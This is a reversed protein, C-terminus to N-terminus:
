SFLHKEAHTAVTKRYKNDTIIMVDWDPISRMQIAEAVPTYDHLTKSNEGDIIPIDTQQIRPEALHLDPSPIDIIVHGKPINLYEEFFEEKQRRISNNELSSLVQKQEDTLQQGSRVFAQKFLQRYKLHTILSQQFTEQQKLFMILEADTMSFFEFPDLSPLMELARSLMLEAIRVTKHYYVSSYMLTRAMLINEVVGVGKRNLALQDQHILLTQVFRQTDIMGYAVGTYYADRLLYDLQDVDIVSNLVQTLYPKATKTGKIMNSITRTDVQHSELVEAVTKTLHVFREENEQFISYKGTILNQTLDVHDVNLTGRLISELTHSFPGHGIDHLLSACKVINKEYTPLKLADSIESAMHFAGFSHELRTHHAGPFVLHALGLQKISSLRQLEPTDLLELFINDFRINGHISDRIVKYEDNIM